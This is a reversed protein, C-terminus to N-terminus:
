ISAHTEQFMGTLQPPPSLQHYLEHRSGDNLTNNKNGDANDRALKLKSLGLGMKLLPHFSGGRGRNSVVTVQSVQELTNVNARQLANAIVTSVAGLDQVFVM